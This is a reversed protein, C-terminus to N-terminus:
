PTSVRCLMMYDFSSSNFNMTLGSITSPMAGYTASKLTSNLIPSASFSSSLGFGPLVGRLVRLTPTGDSFIAFYYRGASLTTNITATKVGTSDAAVTGGDVVLTGTAWDSDATYIGMRATIGASAATMVECVLQDLVISTAVYIPGFRLTNAGLGAASTGIPVVGPALLSTTGYRGFAPVTAGSGGGAPRYINAM